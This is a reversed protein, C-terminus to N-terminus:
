APLSRVRFSEGIPSAVPDFMVEMEVFLLENHRVIRARIACVSM